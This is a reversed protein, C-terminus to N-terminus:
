VIRRWGEFTRQDTIAEQPVPGMTVTMKSMFGETMFGFCGGTTSEVLGRVESYSANPNTGLVTQANFQELLKMQGTFSAHVSSLLKYLEASPKEVALGMAVAERRNITYDHSGSDACLFDIIKKIRDEDAVQRRILKDALYRIQARSRFIEGLVLPHIKNSLDMLINALVNPDTVGLEGKAADLYGRVAEVSVPVRQLQAGVQVGPNLPHNLSPDIPGLAAQKTMVLRNAGLSILTGSSMARLPILVEFDECFSQILNVLQWATSTNGGNTHLILSIKNTPGIEDLIEVFLNIADQAIQTELGPRDSTVFTIVKSSRKKEIKRYIKKRAAFDM